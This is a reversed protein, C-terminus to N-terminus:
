FNVPLNIAKKLLRLYTQRPIEIAGLQETFDNIYQSDLLIFGKEILLQTLHYFAAKSTNSKASFMSEGFFAGGISVGYLGGVLQGECWTEVSHAFGQRHLEIYSHIIDDSIWTDPRKSCEIIVEGFSKNVTFYFNERKIIQRLSKPTRVSDLPIVARMAPSHWYIMGDSDAMPFYGKSYAEILQIVPIM